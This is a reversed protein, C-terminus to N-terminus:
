YLHLLKRLGMSFIISFILYLGIWGPHWGFLSFEGLPKLLKYDINISKIDSHQYLTISEAYDFTTGIKVIKTQTTNGLTVSLSHEGEEGKLKWTAKGDALPQKEADILTSKEDVTLLAEGSLGKEFSATISYTEGPYIPEFSLHGTMWSFMLLVPIMTILMPKFSAKMYQLNVGMAEKQVKMMEEPNSRLEKMQKQFGKQKEKMEKMAVQDTFYKYVLTVILSIFLSLVVISVFPNWNVMPLLIPNFVPDLFAM